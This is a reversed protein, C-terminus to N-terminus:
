AVVGISVGTHGAGAVQNVDITTRGTAPVSVMTAVPASGDDYYYTVEATTPPPPRNPLLLDEQCGPLTSGEAFYFSTGPGTAGPPIWKRGYGALRVYVTRPDAPDMRISSIVRNPLGNHQAIHWGNSTLKEPTLTGGVNTAIGNQFPPRQTALDCFGCYAAYA